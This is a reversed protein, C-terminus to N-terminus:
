AIFSLVIEDMRVHVMHELAGETNTEVVRQVVSVLQDVMATSSESLVIPGDPALVQVRVCVTLLMYM